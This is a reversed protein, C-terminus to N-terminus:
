QEEVPVTGGILKACGVAAAAADIM